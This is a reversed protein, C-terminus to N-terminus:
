RAGRPGLGVGAVAWRDRTYALYTALARVVFSIPFSLWVGFAGLGLGFGLLGALPIQILLTMVFNIRLSTRTAGAGQLVGTLAISLGAPVMACGLVRMWEVAYRDLPTGADVDFIRVLPHAAIVIAFALISMMAVCLAMSARAIRRAREPDSAGLAQGVLAATAQAVGLGPVFAFSQVRLGLGHAAVTIGDIRGLMGIATL